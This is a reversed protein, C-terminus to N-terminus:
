GNKRSLWKFLKPLEKEVRQADEDITSDGVQGLMSASVGHEETGFEDPTIALDCNENIM